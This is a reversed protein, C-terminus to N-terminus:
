TMLSSWIFFTFILFLIVIHVNVYNCCIFLEFLRILFIIIRSQRIYLDTVNVKQLSVYPNQLKKELTLKVAMGIELSYDNNLRMELSTCRKWNALNYAFSGTEPERDTGTCCLLRSCALTLSPFLRPVPWKKEEESRRRKVNARKAWAWGVSWPSGSVLQVCIFSNSIFKIM